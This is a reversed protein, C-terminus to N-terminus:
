KKPSPAAPAKPNIIQFDSALREGPIRGGFAMVEGSEPHLLASHGCRNGGCDDIVQETGSGGFAPAPGFSWHWTETDLMYSKNYINEQESEEDNPDWGGYICITKGDNLLTASHGTRPLPPVGSCAQHAWRWGGDCRSLVEVGNFCKTANNGGFLVIKYTDSAADKVATASHFSRGKPPTGQIKKPNTWVWTKTNLVCLTNMFKSGKVGGFVVVEDSDPLFTASHGSRPTPSDGSVVPPYWVFIETDLVQLTDTVSLKGKANMIEGGFVMFSGKSPIYTCSHWQRAESKCHIPKEWTRKIPDYVSLDDLLLPNGETDFSQGGYVVMQGEKTQAMSHGWRPAPSASGEDQSAAPESALAKTPSAVDKNADEMIEDDADGKSSTHNKMPVSEMSKISGDDDGDKTTHTAVSENSSNVRDLIEQVSTKKTAGSALPTEVVPSVKMQAGVVSGRDSTSGNDDTDMTQSCDLSTPDEQTPPEVQGLPVDAAAANAEAVAKATSKPTVLKSRRTNSTKPTSSAKKKKSAATSTTEAISGSRKRGGRKTSTTAPAFSLKQQGPSVDEGQTKPAVTSTTPPSHPEEEVAASINSSTAVRLSGSFSSLSIVIGGNGDNSYSVGASDNDPTLVFNVGGFSLTLTPASEPAVVPEQLDVPVTTQTLTPM